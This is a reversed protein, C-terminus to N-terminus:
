TEELEILTGAHDRPDLFLVKTGHAGQMPCGSGLVHGGADTVRQRAALLDAVEFCLHHVAGRPHAAVFRAIPSGVGLPAILEICTNPVDVFAVSVGHEPLALPESVRAGLRTRYIRSAETLDAVAIAVHNLRSLM